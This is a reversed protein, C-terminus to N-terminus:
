KVPGGTGTVALTCKVSWLGKGKEPGQTWNGVKEWQERWKRGSSVDCALGDANSEVSTPSHAYPGLRPRHDRHDSKIVQLSLSELHGFDPGLWHTRRCSRPAALAYAYRRGAATRLRRDNPRSARIYQSPDRGVCVGAPCACTKPNPLCCVIASLLLYFQSAHQEDARFPRSWPVLSRSPPKTAGPSFPLDSFAALAKGSSRPSSALLSFVPGGEVRVRQTEEGEEGTWRRSLIGHADETRPLPALRWLALTGDLSSSALYRTGDASHALIRRGRAELSTGCVEFSVLQTTNSEAHVALRNRQSCRVPQRSGACPIGKSLPLTRFMSSAGEGLCFRPHIVLDGACAHRNLLLPTGKIGGRIQELNKRKSRVNDTSLITLTSANFRDPEYFPREEM